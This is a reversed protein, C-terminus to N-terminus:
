GYIAAPWFLRSKKVPFSIKFSGDGFGVYCCRYYKMPKKCLMHTGSCLGLQRGISGRQLPHEPRGGFLHRCGADVFGQLYDFAKKSAWDSLNKRKESRGIFFYLCILFRSIQFICDPLAAPPKQNRSSM